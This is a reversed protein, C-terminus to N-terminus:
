TPFATADLNWDAKKLADALFGVLARVKESLLRRSPYVAYIHVAETHWDSLIEVLRGQARDASVLFSPQFIIGLHGLAAVRCTDGNNVHLRPRTKFLEPGRSSELKWTDGTAAYSYGVFDHGTLEAPTDPIGHRALYQPSACMVMRSSALRRSILTTDALRATIRVDLYLTGFSLPVSVKLQGVVKTSATGVM